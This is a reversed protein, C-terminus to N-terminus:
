APRSSAKQRERSDDRSSASSATWCVKRLAWRLRRLPVTGRASAAQINAIAAFTQRSRCRAAQRRLRMSTTESSPSTPSHAAGSCEFSSSSPTASASASSVGFWRRAIRIRSHCPREYRSIAASSENLSPATSVSIKRARRESACLSSRERRRTQPMEFM